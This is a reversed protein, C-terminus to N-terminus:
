LRVAGNFLFGLLGNYYVLILVVIGCVAILAYRQVLGTQFAGFLRSLMMNIWGVLNVLGDVVYRDFIRSVESIGRTLAASGNVLLGDILKSDFFFCGNGLNKVRNVFLADYIEDVYYKRYVTTYIGRIKSTIRDATGPRAVYFRYAFYIGVLAIGISLGTMLLEQSISHHAGHGSAEPLYLVPELFHEFKNALGTWAPMGIWGGVISLGALVALPAIVRKPSEHIHHRTHDDMREQGWFTLFLLRFMYFATMGAGLWLLLWIVPHGNSWAKWLIEDKSFFGAFPPIGCIAVTGVLMTGYTWPLYKKLNGMKMMDQEHHMAMIVSGSGLFLLAKFFAHTMVHFIGGVFAGVGLAAFMYGLQSVTSYALVRKIDTQAFGITAAFIATMTGVVAVIMLAEHSRSYIANSRCVMYVGATVMTAAHILASVPTPGEMADPLWVYLPIQASKGCAGVFFCISAWFLFGTGTEVPMEAAKNFVAEFQLSGFHVFVLMMGLVFGADGIRNVVFAKKGADGASKKDFYFGILLYSCLGVGEWGVFMMLYNNALVLTLMAFMFLNLYSFFRYYGSDDWMYGTSYIHILFGVGTVVLIMVASLPDLQFGWSIDLSAMGGEALPLVGGQIWTLLDVNYVEEHEVAFLQYVCSLSILFALGVSSLAIASVIKKNLKEGTNSLKFLGLMGVTISGFFPLIPILWIYNLM